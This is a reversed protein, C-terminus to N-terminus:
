SAAKDELIILALIIFLNTLFIGKQNWVEEKKMKKMLSLLIEWIKMEQKMLNIKITKSWLKKSKIRMIDGSNNKIAPFILMWNNWKLYFQWEKQERRKGKKKLLCRNKSSQKYEMLMKMKRRRRSLLNRKIELKWRKKKRKYKKKLIEQLNILIQSKM